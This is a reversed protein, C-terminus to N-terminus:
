WRCAGERKCHHLLDSSHTRDRVNIYIQVFLRLLWSSLPGPPFDKLFSGFQLSHSPYQVGSVPSYCWHILRERLNWAQKFTVLWSSFPLHNHNVDSHKLVTHILWKNDENKSYGRNSPVKQYDYQCQRELKEMWGKKKQGQSWSSFFSKMFIKLEMLDYVFWAFIYKNQIQNKGKKCFCVATHSM